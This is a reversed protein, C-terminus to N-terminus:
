EAVEEMQVLRSALLELEKKSLVLNVGEFDVLSDIMGTYYGKVEYIMKLLEKSKM